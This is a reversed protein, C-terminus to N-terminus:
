FRLARVLVGFCYVDIPSQSYAHFNNGFNFHNRHENFLSILYYLIFHVCMPCYPRGIKYVYMLADFPYGHVCFVCHTNCDATAAVVCLM